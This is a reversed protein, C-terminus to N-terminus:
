QAIQTCIGNFSGGPRSCAFGNQCNVDNTCPGATVPPAYVPVMPVQTIGNTGIGVGPSPVLAPAATSGPTIVKTTGSPTVVTPAYITGSSYLGAQSLCIGMINGTKVCVNGKPCSSDNFCAFSNPSLIFCILFLTFKKM